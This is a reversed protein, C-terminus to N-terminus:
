SIVNNRLYIPAIDMPSLRSDINFLAYRLVFYAQPEPNPLLEIKEAEPLVNYENWVSGVCCYDGVLNIKEPDTLCDAIENKVGHHKDGSYVAWYIQKMRADLGVLIKKSSITSEAHMAMSALSSVPIIEIQLAYALGIAVSVGLRVGTFSGPGITVAIYDLSSLEVSHELCLDKIMAHIYQNHQRPLVGIKQHIVGAVNLAVSCNNTTTDIALINTM